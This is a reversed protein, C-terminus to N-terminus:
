TSVHALQRLSAVLERAFDSSVFALSVVEARAQTM